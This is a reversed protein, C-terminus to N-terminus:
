ESEWKSHISARLWRVALIKRIKLFSLFYKMRIPKSSYGNLEFAYGNPFKVVIRLKLIVNNLMFYYPDFAAYLSLKLQGITTYLLTLSHKEM